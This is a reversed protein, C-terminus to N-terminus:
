EPGLLGRASAAMAAGARTDVGLKEYIHITHHQVTRPSIGLAAAVEKNTKLDSSCV